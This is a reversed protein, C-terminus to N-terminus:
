NRRSLRYDAPANKRPSGAVPSAQPVGQPEMSELLDKLKASDVNNPASAVRFPLQSYTKIGARSWAQLSVPHRATLGKCSLHGRQRERGVDGSPLASLHVCFWRIVATRNVTRGPQGTGAVLVVFRLGCPWFTWLGCPCFPFPSHERSRNARLRGLARTQRSLDRLPWGPGSAIKQQQWLQGSCVLALCCSSFLHCLGTYGRRRQTLGM